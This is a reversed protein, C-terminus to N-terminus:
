IFLSPTVKFYDGRDYEEETEILKPAVEASEFHSSSTLNYIDM